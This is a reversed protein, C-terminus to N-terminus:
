FPYGIGLNFNLRYPNNYLNGEADALKRKLRFEDLVFRDGEPRSPDIVKIGWDFRFQFYSLDYRLGFGTGVAIEKYFRRFDFNAKNYKEPTNIQYWKWINGADVFGAFQIDGFFRAVKKRWEFSGELLIDGAQPIIYNRATDPFASGVGLSRPSWARISNSGGVFFNKEYPLSKNGYPNAVGVNFRYALSSGPTLNIYRRYDVNIKIFRFYKRVTDPSNLDQRLPFLSEILRIHDKDKSFNLLTGGSEVFVRLFRSSAYPDQLNQDNYM